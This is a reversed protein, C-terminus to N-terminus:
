HHAAVIQPWSKPQAPVALTSVGLDPRGPTYLWEQLFADLDVGSIREALAQFEPTTGAGYKRAETWAKLIAFFDEDGVLKRLHHLTLAGRDYVAGDFLDGAGPDGPLVQWFASDAPYATSYVYDAIEEATGEGQDESWLWQAYSAFGENLWIDKWQGVSVSDGFWQHALEHVILSNNSGRLFSRGDYVPRTQTELAFGQDDAGTVVGGRAGFPYPGFKGALWDTIEDSREVSTRAAAATAADLRTNYATVIPSGDASTDQYTEFDGIALFALYTAQPRDQRWSWRSWGDFAPAAWRTPTGNSIAEVGDPVLVSVDFSAKDTPHDNSPYWWWAIEPENVALAGDPTRNWSTFGSAVVNSPIDDYEVVITLPAGKAISRAPTVVLEHDGQKTFGAPRNNVRVSTTALAFDLNFRSLDQTASALITTAGTLRDTDPYYRLRIDYHAVDYGGNGYDPYYVDGAGPSGPAPAAQSGTAVGLVAAMVAATVIVTRRLM